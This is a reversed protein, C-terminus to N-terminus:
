EKVGFNGWKSYRIVRYEEIDPLITLHDWSHKPLAKAKDIAEEKTRAAVDVSYEDICQATVTFIKEGESLIINKKSFGFLYEKTLGKHNSLIRHNRDNPFIIFDGPFIDVPGNSFDVMAKSGDPGYYVVCKVNSDPNDSSTQALTLSNPNAYKANASGFIIGGHVLFLMEVDEPNMNDLDYGHKSPLVGVCHIVPDNSLKNNTSDM